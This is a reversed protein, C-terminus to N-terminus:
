RSGLGTRDAPSRPTWTLLVADVLPTLLREGPTLNHQRPYVSLFDAGSRSLEHLVAGLAGPQWRVDADTFIYGLMTAMDPAIM